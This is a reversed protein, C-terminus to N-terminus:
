VGDRGYARQPVSDSNLPANYLNFVRERRACSIEQNQRSRRPHLTTDTEKRKDAFRSERIWSLRYSCVQM